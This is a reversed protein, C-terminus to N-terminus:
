NGNLFIYDDLSLRDISVDKLGFKSLVESEYAHAASDLSLSLDVTVFQSTNLGTKPVFIKKYQGFTSDENTEDVFREDCFFLQWKSWDTACKDAGTALYKILSGGSLGIRFSGNAAIADAASKEIYSWLRDIVLDETREVIIESM